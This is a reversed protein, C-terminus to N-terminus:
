QTGGKLLEPNDHINGVVKFRERPFNKMCLGHMAFLALHKEGGHETFRLDIIKEEENWVVEFLGKHDNYKIIDGEYIMQGFSDTFGTFQGITEEDVPAINLEPDCPHSRWLICYEPQGSSVGIGQMLFGYAWKGDPDKGRFEIVRM